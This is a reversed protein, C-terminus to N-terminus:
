HHSEEKKLLKALASCAREHLYKSDEKDACNHNEIAEFLVRRGGAELIVKKCEAGAKLLNDLALCAFQQLKANNKFRSMAAIVFQIGNLENVICHANASTTVFNALAGCASAQLASDQPYKEMAWVISHLVGTEKAGAKLAANKFAVNQLAQCADAQINPYAHWKIMAGVITASGGIRVIAARNNDKENNDSGSCMQNLIDFANKVIDYDESWLEVLFIQQIRTLNSDIQDCLVTWEHTRESTTSTLPSSTLSPSEVEIPALSENGEGKHKKDPRDSMSETPLLVSRIPREAGTLQQEDTLTIIRETCSM